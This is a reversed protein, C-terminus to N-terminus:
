VGEISSFGGPGIFRENKLQREFLLSLRGIRLKRNMCKSDNYFREDLLLIENPKHQM